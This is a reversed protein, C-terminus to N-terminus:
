TKQLSLLAEEGSQNGQYCSENRVIIGNYHSKKFHVFIVHFAMLPCIEIWGPFVQHPTPSKFAIQKLLLSIMIFNVSKSLSLYVMNGEFAKKIQTSCRDVRPGLYISVRDANGYAQPGVSQNGELQREGHASADRPRGPHTCESEM